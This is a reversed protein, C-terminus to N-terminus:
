SRRAPATALWILHRAGRRGGPGSRVVREEVDFGARRLRAVFRPDPHASWFAAVGGPRLAARAATLGDGAYLGDNAAITLGEPGNDVDLLIADWARPASEIQRAVDGVVIRVRADGLSGAHLAAMPGRAWDVVEPVLEAVVIEADAPLAALAARLTFGMGLGGILLRPRPRDALRACALEALAVESGSRRSSMLSNAGLLILYEEGRRVLRLEGGGPIRATDLTEPAIV